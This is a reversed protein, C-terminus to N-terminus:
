LHEPGPCHRGVDQFRHQVPGQKWCGHDDFGFRRYKPLRDCPSMLAADVSPIVRGPLVPEAFQVQLGRLQAQMSKIDLAASNEMYGAMLLDGAKVPDGEEVMLGKVEGTSKATVIISKKAEVSGSEKIMRVVDGTSVAATEVSIGSGAVAFYAAAATIVLAGGLLFWKIKPKNEKKDM